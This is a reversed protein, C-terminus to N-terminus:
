ATATDSSSPSSTAGAMTKMAAEAKAQIAMILPAVRRAFFDGNVEMVTSVLLLFEDPLLDGIMTEPEGTAVAMATIIDNGHLAVAAGIKGDMLLPAAAAIARTFAPVQRVRLPTVALTKGGVVIERPIPIYTELTPATM